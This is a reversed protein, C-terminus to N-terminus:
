ISLTMKVTEMFEKISDIQKNPQVTFTSTQYDPLWHVGITYVGAKIGAEIDADSDGIFLTDKNSVNLGKLAKEVGEPHPKPHIVDDGTIKIDFYDEMQLAKLSLDLSREAKGTVIGVKIGNNKLFLLLSTIEDNEKVFKEHNEEYLKYYEEIAKMKHPHTLNENIIGTESPGFMSKIETVSLNKGDYKKFVHRFAHFCLPLTNALTGDFDFLVAKM